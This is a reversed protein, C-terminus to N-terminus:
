VLKAGVRINMKHSLQPVPKQIYSGKTTFQSYIELEQYTRSRWAGHSFFVIQAAMYLREGCLENTCGLVKFM